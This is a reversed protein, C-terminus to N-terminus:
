TPGIRRMSKYLLDAVLVAPFALAAVAAGAPNPPAHGLIKALPGSYLFALLLGLEVAVAYALYRNTPWGLAGPWRTASRCAFANAMQGIVVASFAAGSAALFQSGTPFAAGPRWGIALMAAIFATMEVLAEVLGLLGFARLLV